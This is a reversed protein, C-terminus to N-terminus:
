AAVGWARIQGYAAIVKTTAGRRDFTYSPIAEARLEAVQRHLRLRDDESAWRIAEILAADRPAPYFTTLDPVFLYLHHGRARFRQYARHLDTLPRDLASFVIVHAGHHLREGVADLAKALEFPGPEPRVLGINEFMNRFHPPGRAPPLFQRVGASYTLLGLRDEASRQAYGTILTAAESTRDLVTRGVEGAVM